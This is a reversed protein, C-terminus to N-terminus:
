EDGKEEIRELFGGGYKELNKTAEKSRKVSMEIESGAQYVEDTHKDRFTKLVNFKAM